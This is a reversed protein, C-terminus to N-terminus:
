KRKLIKGAIRALIGELLILGVWIGIASFYLTGYISAALDSGGGIAAFIFFIISVPPLAAGLIRRIWFFLTYLIELPVIAGLNSFAAPYRHFTLHISISSTRSVHESVTVKNNSPNYEGEFTHTETVDEVETAEGVTWGFRQTNKAIRKWGFKKLVLYKTQVKKM